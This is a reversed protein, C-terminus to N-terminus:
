VDNKSAELIRRLEAEEDYDASPMHQQSKLSDEIAKNIMAQDTGLTDGGAFPNSGAGFGNNSPVGPVGTDYAIQSHRTVGQM